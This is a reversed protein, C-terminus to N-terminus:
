FATIGPIPMDGEKGNDYNQIVFFLTNILLRIM